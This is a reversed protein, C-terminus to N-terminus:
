HIEKKFQRREEAREAGGKLYDILGIGDTDPNDEVPEGYPDFGMFQRHGEFVADLWNSIEWRESWTKKGVVTEEGKKFKFLIAPSRYVGLSNLVKGTEDKMTAKAWEISDRAVQLPVNPSKTIWSAASDMEDVVLIFTPGGDQRVWDNLEKSSLKHMHYRRDM